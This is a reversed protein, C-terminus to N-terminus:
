PKPNDNSFRSLRGISAIGRSWAGSSLISFSSLNSTQGEPSSTSLDGDIEQCHNNEAEEAAPQESVPGASLRLGVGLDERPRFPMLRTAPLVIAPYYAYVPSSDVDNETHLEANFSLGMMSPTSINRSQSHQELDDYADIMSLEGGGLPSSAEDRILEDAVEAVLRMEEEDIILMSLRSLLVPETASSTFLIRVVKWIGVDQKTLRYNVV